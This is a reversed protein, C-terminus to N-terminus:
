FKQEGEDTFINCNWRTQLAMDMMVTPHAPTLLPVTLQNLPKKYFCLQMGMASAGCLAYLPCKAITSPM